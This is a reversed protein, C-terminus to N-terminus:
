LLNLLVKHVLFILHVYCSQNQNTPNDVVDPTIPNIRDTGERNTAFNMPFVIQVFLSITFFSDPTFRDAAWATLLISIETQHYKIRTTIQKYTLNQLIVSSLQCYILFLTSDSSFSQCFPFAKKEDRWIQKKVGALKM